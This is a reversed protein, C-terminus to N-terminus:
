LQAAVPSQVAPWEITRSEGAVELKNGELRALQVELMPPPDRLFAAFRAASEPDDLVPVLVAHMEDDTRVFVMAAWPKATGTCLYILRDSITGDLGAPPHLMPRVLNVYPEFHGAANELIASGELLLNANAFRGLIEWGLYRGGASLAYSYGALSFLTLHAAKLLSVLAPIRVDRQIEIEWIADFASLARTPEVKLALRVPPGGHAVTLESHTPPVPRDPLYHGVKQGNVFLRPRLRQSLDRDLLVDVASFMGRKQLLVFDGEFHSGFFNDIDSRQPTTRGDSGRFAANIVHGLSVPVPEDRFLIPCFFHECRRGSVKAYDARLRSLRQDFHDNVPGTRRVPM